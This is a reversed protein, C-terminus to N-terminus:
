WLGGGIARWLAVLVAMVWVAMSVPPVLDAGSLQWDTRAQSLRLEIPWGGGCCGPECCGPMPREAYERAGYLITRLEEDSAGSWLAAYSRRRSM